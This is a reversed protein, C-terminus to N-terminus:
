IGVGPQRRRQSRWVGQVVTSVIQNTAFGAMNPVVSLLEISTLPVSETGLITFSAAAVHTIVTAAVRSNDGNAAETFGGFYKRGSHKRLITGLTMMVANGAPLPDTLGEVGSMDGGDLHGLGINETVEWPGVLPNVKDVLLVDSVFEIHLDDIFNSFILTMKDSITNFVPLNEATGTGIAKFWWTNMVKSNDRDLWTLTARLIDNVAVTM